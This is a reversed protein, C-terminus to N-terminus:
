KGVLAVTRAMLASFATGDVANAPDNWAGAVAYWDGSRTKLLWSIAIVGTESGGKYGVADFRARETPSLSPNVGLIGLATADSSRRLRDLVRAIETMTAPWEVTDIHLPPGALAAADIEGAVPELENLVQRRESLGGAIWRKRLADRAPMKLAFADLTTLLPLSGPTTGVSARMADVKPRGLAAVLTDTATNDSISIMQTALTALTVPLEKPWSQTVGSPLSPPGLPVVDSWKREKVEVARAVEALVFLKFVSGTALPTDPNLAAFPVPKDEGLKAVILAATGPLKKLDGIVADFSDGRRAVGTILLGILRHPEPAEIALRVTVTANAYDITAVGQLASEPDLRTLGIVPGNATRLEKAIGEVQAAPVQALFAPAFATEDAKADRLLALVSQARAALAPSPTDAHAMGAVVLLLLALFRAM